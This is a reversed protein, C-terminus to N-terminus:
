KRLGEFKSTFVPQHFNYKQGTNINYVESNLKWGDQLNASLTATNVIRRQLTLRKANSLFTDGDTMWFPFYTAV